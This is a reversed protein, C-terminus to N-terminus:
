SAYFIARVLSNCLLKVARCFASKNRSCFLVFRAAVIATEIRRKKHGQFPTHFRFKSNAAWAQRLDFSGAVMGYLNELSRAANNKQCFLNAGTTTQVRGPCRIHGATYHFLACMGSGVCLFHRPPVPEVGTPVVM